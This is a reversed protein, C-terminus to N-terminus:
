LIPIRLRSIHIIKVTDFDEDARTLLWAQYNDLFVANKSLEDLTQPSTDDIIELSFDFPDNLESPKAVKLMRQQLTSIVYDGFFRIM